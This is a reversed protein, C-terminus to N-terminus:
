RRWRSALHMGGSIPLTAGTVYSADESCFFAVPGAIERPTAVRGLPTGRTLETLADASAREATRDTAVVGPAVVNATIGFRGYEIALGRVLAELAAKAAGYHAAGDSGMAAALSTVAVVRGFRAAAMKPLLRKTLAAFSRFDVQWLTEIDADDATHYRAYAFRHGAVHILAEHHGETLKELHADDALDGVVCTAGQTLLNSVRDASRVALCVSWGRGMLTEAIALGIDSSAGTILARRTM